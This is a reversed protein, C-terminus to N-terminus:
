KRTFPLALSRAVALKIHSFMTSRGSLGRFGFEIGDHRANM